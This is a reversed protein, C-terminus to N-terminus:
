RKGDDDDLLGAVFLVLVLVVLSWFVIPVVGLTDAVVLSSGSPVSVEGVSAARALLTDSNLAHRAPMGSTTPAIRRLAAGSLPRAVSWAAVTGGARWAAAALALSAMAALGRAARRASRM